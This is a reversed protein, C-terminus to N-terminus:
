PTYSKEFSARQTKKNETCTAFVTLKKPRKCQVPQQYYNQWARKKSGQYKSQIIIAHNTKFPTASKLKTHKNKQKAKQQNTQKIRKSKVSHSKKKTGKKKHNKLKDDKGQECKWWNNRAKDERDRLSDGKTLSYGKRQMTQINHLKALLSKCRKKAIASSSPFCVVIFFIFLLSLRM